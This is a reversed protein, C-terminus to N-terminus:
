FGLKSGQKSSEAKNDLIQFGKFIVGGMLAIFSSVIFLTFSGTLEYLYGNFFFGVMLGLGYQVANNIAQGLTKTKDPTLHDMYLISAMHFTGYTVAHFVQAFLILAASQAFYLIGWRLAAIGFSFALVNELSFRGFIKDSKLMVLIEATSALAWTTGIFAKPYGLTELHISFFGYYAGHSVLMLFSCFLFLIVRPKLLAKANSAFAEKQAFNIQPINFAVLSQLLAGAFILVLILEISYLDILRGLVVVVLIFSM